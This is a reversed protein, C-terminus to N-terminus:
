PKRIAKAYRYRGIYDRTIEVDDFGNSILMAKLEDVFLPNIEFYLKGNDKLARSAYEAIARYFLLPNSDPVFLASSPEYDKVRSEMDAREKDAIYPPNSVIIDYVAKDPPSLNLIDDLSFNVNAKLHNANYRAITLADASIDIADVSAFPLNRALAIAICGSGTGCDLVHLDSQTAHDKVIIDVLGETEPRPILVAPTVKFDMGYFRASGIAYQIPEGKCIRNVINKIHEVTEPEATRHGNVVLDTATVGR